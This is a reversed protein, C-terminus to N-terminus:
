AVKAYHVKYFYWYKLGNRLFFMPQKPGMFVYKNLYYGM